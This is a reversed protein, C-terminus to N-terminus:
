VAEPGAQRLRRSGMVKWEEGHLWDFGCWETLKMYFLGLSGLGRAAHVAHLRGARYGFFAAAGANTDVVLLRKDTLRADVTPPSLKVQAMLSCYFTSGRGVESDVWIRGGMMEILRQSIVLGLGSGGYTRSISSDVQSFPRFLRNLRDSPIGMGTDQVVFRLAYISDVKTRLCRASVTITVEGAATFKVANSLLNVLVQRLRNEDGVIINPVDAEILYTLDLNKELAKPALLDIADEICSRLDFPQQELDLKGAEIKSFDLIDNVISLLSAGSTRITEIFDRQQDNLPTDRLLEALGIVANMPTRIEHSMTALFHSKAQNELEARRREQELAANKRTLEQRQQMEQELLRAQALAIGMQAAVAQLLDRDDGTWERGDSQRCQHLCIIGNPEGQYSTRVALMSEAPDDTSQVAIAQDQALLQQLDFPAIPIEAELRTACATQQYEAVPLLHLASTTNCATTNCATTNCATTAYTYIM